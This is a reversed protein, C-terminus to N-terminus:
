ASERKAVREAGLRYCETVVGQNRIFYGGLVLDLSVATGFSSFSEADARGGAMWVVVPIGLAVAYAIEARTGPGVASCWRVFTVDCRALRAMCGALPARHKGNNPNSLWRAHRSAWSRRLHPEIPGMTPTKWAEFLASTPLMPRCGAADLAEHAERRWGVGLDPLAEVAGCLYARPRSM